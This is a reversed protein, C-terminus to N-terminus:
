PNYHNAAALARYDLTNMQNEIIQVDFNGIILTILLKYGPLRAAYPSANYSATLRFTWLSPSQTLNHLVM